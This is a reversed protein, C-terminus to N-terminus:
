GPWDRFSTVAGNRTSRLSVAARSGGNRKPRRSARTLRAASASRAGRHRERERTRMTDDMFVQEGKENIRVIPQDSEYIKLASARARRVGAAAAGTQACRRRGEEARRRAAGPAEEARAGPEGHRPRRRIASASLVAAGSVIEAKVNGPPPQDSYSVRGNADVWKYLVAGAPLAILAGALVALAMGTGRCARTPRM